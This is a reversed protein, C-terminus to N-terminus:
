PSLKAKSAENDTTPYRHMVRAPNGMAVSRGALSSLVVSRTGITSDDGIEVGKLVSSYPAIHVRNGLIIPRGPDPKDFNGPTWDHANSDLLMCGDGIACAEGITIRHFCILRVERMITTARGITLTAQPDRIELGVPGLWHAGGDFGFEVEEGIVVQGGQGFIRM